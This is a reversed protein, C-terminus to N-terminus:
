RYHPRQGGGASPTAETAPERGANLQAQAAMELNGAVYHNTAEYAGGVARLTTEAMGGLVGFYHEAFRGLAESVIGSGSEEVANGLHTELRTLGRTLGSGGEEDGLHGLTTELVGGVRAPDIDWASM